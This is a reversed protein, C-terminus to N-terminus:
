CISRASSKKLATMYLRKGMRFKWFPVTDRTKKNGVKKILCNSRPTNIMPKCFDAFYVMSDHGPSNHGEQTNMVLSDLSWPTNMVLSNKQAGPLREVFIKLLM